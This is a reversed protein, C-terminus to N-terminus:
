GQEGTTQEGTNLSLHRNNAAEQMVKWYNHWWSRYQWDPCGACLPLERGRNELHLQRYHNFAEGLWISQISQQWVNGMCTRASIDYGCVMVTGRSDINLREFIFPCPVNETDLYPTPDASIEADLRTNEGWTLFKRKIFYDVGIEQMWFAEVREIDLGKRNVGSAVIRSPSALEKRMSLLRRANDLLVQWDLGKRMIAYEEPTCADVSLEIMDVGAQLLAHSSEEDFRSGNSILGVKCGVQRAYTLLEVAQPHLM